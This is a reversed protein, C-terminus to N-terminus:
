AVGGPAAEVVLIAVDDRARGGELASVRQSVESALSQPELGSLEAVLTALGSEGLAGAPTRAETVGDTYLVLRDGEALALEVTVPAIVPLIGVLGGRTGVLEVGGDARALLAPPHGGSALRVRLGDPTTAVLGVCATLFRTNGPHQHLIEDNLAVLLEAPDTIRRALARLTYRALATLAESLM